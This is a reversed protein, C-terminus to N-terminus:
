KEKTKTKEYSRGIGYATLFATFFAWMQGSIVFDPIRDGFIARLYPAVLYSNLIILFCTLAGIPRWSRQFWNGQAEAIIISAQLGIMKDKFEAIFKERANKDPILKDATGTIFKFINGVIPLKWFM